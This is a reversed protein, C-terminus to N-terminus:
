IRAQHGGEPGEPVDLGHHPVLLGREVGDGGPDLPCIAGPTHFSSAWAPTPHRGPGLIIFSKVDV